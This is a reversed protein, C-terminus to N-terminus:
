RQFLYSRSLLIQYCHRDALMWKAADKQVLLLLEHVNRLGRFRKLPEEDKLTTHRHLVHDEAQTQFRAQPRM